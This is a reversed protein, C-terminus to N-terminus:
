YVYPFVGPETAGCSISDAAMRGSLANGTMSATVGKKNQSLNIMGRAAKVERNYNCGTVGGVNLLIKINSM